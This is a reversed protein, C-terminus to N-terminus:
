RLEQVGRRLSRAAPPDPQRRVRDVNCTRPYTDLMDKVKPM